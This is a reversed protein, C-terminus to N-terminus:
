IKTVAYRLNNFGECLSYSLEVSFTDGEHVNAHTIPLIISYGYASSSDLTSGDAFITENSIRLGNIEGERHIRLTTALKVEIDTVPKSFDVLKYLVKESFSDSKLDPQEPYEYRVIPFSHGYFNCNNLVLDVYNAFKNLIVKTDEKAFRLMNNMAPVQLEEILGTAIMEGIIVDVKQPLDIKTVDGHIIEIRDSCGNAVFTKSLNEINNEDYEVAYVKEAGADVAFMALVGSGTGMDVVVDGKKVSNKIAHEFAITRKTDILCNFVGETM